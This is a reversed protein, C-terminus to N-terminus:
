MSLVPPIRTRFSSPSCVICKVINNIRRTSPHAGTIIIIRGGRAVIPCEGVFISVAAWEAWGGNLWNIVM